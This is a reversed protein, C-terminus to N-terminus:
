IELNSIYNLDQQWIKLASSYKTSGNNQAARTKILFAIHDAVKRKGYASIAEKLILHRDNDSLKISYGMINLFSHENLNKIRQTNEQSSSKKSSFFVANNNKAVIYYYHKRDIEKEVIDSKKEYAIKTLQKHGAKQSIEMIDKPSLYANTCKPCYPVEAIYYQYFNGNEDFTPINITELFLNTKCVPCIKPITYEVKSKDNRTESQQHPLSHSFEFDILIKERNKKGQSIRSRSLVAREEYLLSNVLFGRYKERLNKLLESSIYIKDCNRCKLLEENVIIDQKKKKNTLMLEFTDRELPYFEWM